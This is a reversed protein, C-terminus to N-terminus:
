PKTEKNIRRKPILVCNKNKCVWEVLNVIGWTFLFLPGFCSILVIAIARDLTIDAHQWIWWCVPIAASLYWLVLILLITM